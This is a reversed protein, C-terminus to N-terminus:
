FLHAFNRQFYNAMEACSDPADDHSAKSSGEQVKMYAFMCLMFKRYEPISEWDARFVFRNKIVSAMALIRTHKNQSNKIIRIDCDQYKEVVKARVSKAFLKWASNGEIVGATMRRSVIQSVLEPENVDTGDTNYIVHPIYIKDGVLYGFPVSLDDGGTDAPDASFFKFETLQELNVTEPNYYQLIEKPFLRGAIPKPDQGHQREFVVDNENKLKLLEPVTHKFPWLAEYEGAANTYLSPLSIVEWEGGDAAKGDREILYGCLDREHLRQMIIIIPTNRSNVRNSITSDWRSNVRERQIDSDADEPKIPDDIILAGGFRQKQDLNSGGEAQQIGGIFEDLTVDDDDNDEIEIDVQGAGFGTVQGAASTAYVGGGETTYWKKKAKSDKKIQVEPFLEQYGDEQVLDRVAESNDLALDDSYSLHIFRASPNLALGHAIFNKVALETKGYRPALNIILRRCEGRLVRELAASIIQHHQGIVFKRRERQVFFYRTFFLLELQCKVRAVKLRKISDTTM